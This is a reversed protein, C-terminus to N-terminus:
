FYNKFLAGLQAASFSGPKFELGGAPKIVSLWLDCWSGLVEDRVQGVLGRSTAEGM